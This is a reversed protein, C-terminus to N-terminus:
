MQEHLYHFWKSMSLDTAQKEKKKKRPTSKFLLRLRLERYLRNGIDRLHTNGCHDNTNAWVFFVEGIHSYSLLQMLLESTYM